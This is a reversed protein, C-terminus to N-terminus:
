RAFTAKIAGTEEKDAIENLALSMAQLIRDLLEVLLPRWTDLVVVEDILQEHSVRDVHLPSVGYNSSANWSQKTANRSVRANIPPTIQLTANLISSWSLDSPNRTVM